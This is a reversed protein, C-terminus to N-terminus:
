HMNLDTNPHEDQKKIQIEVEFRLVSESVRPMTSLASGLGSGWHIKIEMPTSSHASEM